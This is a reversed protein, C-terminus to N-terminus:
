IKRDILWDVLYSKPFSFPYIYIYTYVMLAFFQNSPIDLSQINSYEYNATFFIM